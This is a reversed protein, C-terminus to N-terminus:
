DQYISGKKQDYFQIQDLAQHWLWGYIHLKSNALATCVPHSDKVQLLQNIIHHQTAEYIAGPSLIRDKFANKLQYAHENFFFPESETFDEVPHENCGLSGQIFQCFHPRPRQSPEICLPIYYLQATACNRFYKILCVLLISCTSASSKETNLPIQRIKRAAASKATNRRLASAQSLERTRRIAASKVQAKATMAARSGITQLRGRNQATPGQGIANEM